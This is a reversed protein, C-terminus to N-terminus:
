RLKRRAVVAFHPVLHPTLGARHALRALTGPLGRGSPPAAHRWWWDFAARDGLPVLEGPRRADPFAAHFRIGAFGCHELLRRWGIMSRAGPSVPRRPSGGPFLRGWRNDAPLYLRGGPKLKRRALRLLRTPAEGRAPLVRSDLAVLDFTSDRFPIRDASTVAEVVNEPASAGAAAAPVIAGVAEVDPALSEAFGFEAFGILLVRSEPELPFLFRWDPGRDDTADDEERCAVDTRVDAPSFLAVDGRRDWEGGCAPCTIGADDWLLESGDHPCVVDLPRSPPAPESSRM